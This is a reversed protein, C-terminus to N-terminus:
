MLSLLREKGKENQGDEENQKEGGKKRAHLRYMWFFLCFTCMEERAHPLSFSMEPKEGDKM